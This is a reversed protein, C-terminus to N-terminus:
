ECGENEAYSMKALNIQQQKEVETAPIDWEKMNNLYMKIVQRESMKRRGM